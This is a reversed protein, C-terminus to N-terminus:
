RRTHVPTARISSWPRASIRWRPRPTARRASL